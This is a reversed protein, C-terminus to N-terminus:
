SIGMSMRRTDELSAPTKLRLLRDDSTVLSYNQPRALCFLAFPLELQLREFSANKQGAGINEQGGSGQCGDGMRMRKVVRSGNEDLLAWDCFSGSKLLPNGVIGAGPCTVNKLANGGLSQRGGGGLHFVLIGKGCVM